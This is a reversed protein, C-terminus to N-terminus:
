NRLTMQTSIWEAFSDGCMSYAINLLWQKPLRGIEKIAPYYLSLEPINKIENWIDKIFLGEYQPCYIFKVDNCHVRNFIFDFCFKRVM